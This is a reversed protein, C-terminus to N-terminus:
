GGKKPILRPTRSGRGNDYWIFKYADDEIGYCEACAQQLLAKLEKGRAEYDQCVALEDMLASQEDTAWRIDKEEPAPHLASLIRGDRGTAPPETGNEVHAWFEDALELLRAWQREARADWLLLYERYEWGHFTTILAAIDWRKLGTVGMSWVCQVYYEVPVKGSTSNSTRIQQMQEPTAQGPLPMAQGGWRKGADLSQATKLELGHSGGIAGSPWPSPPQVLGVRSKHETPEVHGDPTCGCCPHARSGVSESCRSVFCGNGEAYREALMQEAARGWWMPESDPVPETLGRKEALLDLYTRYPNVGALASADSAMIRTSRFEVQEPTLGPM